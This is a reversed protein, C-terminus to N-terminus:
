ILYILKVTQKKKLFILAKAKPTNNSDEDSECNFYEKDHPWRPSKSIGKSNSAMNSNEKQNNLYVRGIVTKTGSQVKRGLTNNESTLKIKDLPSTVTLNFNPQKSPNFSPYEINM